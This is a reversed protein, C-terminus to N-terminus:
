CVLTTGLDRIRELSFMSAVREKSFDTRVPGVRHRAGCFVANKV